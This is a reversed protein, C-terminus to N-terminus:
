VRHSFSKASSQIAKWEPNQKIAQINQFTLPRPLSNDFADVREIFKEIEILGKITQSTKKNNLRQLTKWGEFLLFFTHEYDEVSNFIAQSIQRIHEKKFRELYQDFKQTKPNM